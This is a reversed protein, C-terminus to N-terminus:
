FRRLKWASASFSRRWPTMVTTATRPPRSRPRKSPASPQPARWRARRLAPCRPMWIRAPSPTSITWSARHLRFVGHSWEGNARPKGAGARQRARRHGHGSPKRLVAVLRPHYPQHEPRSGGDLARAQDSGPRQAPHVCVRGARAARRCEALAHHRIGEQIQRPEAVLGQRQTLRLLDYQLVRPVPVATTAASRQYAEYAKRYAILADSWEELEEYIMGTLYRALADETYQAGSFKGSIERLRIDVQLAEVRAESLQRLQLYNLAKYLHLLVQEHEEGVYSETADNIVFTLTTESVSTAALADMRGKAMELSVNSGAYDGNMRRLMGQNLLYLVEDRQAYGQKELAQLASDYQQAALQPEISTFSSSYTTCGSAALALVAAIWRPAGQPRAASSVSPAGPSVARSARTSGVSM